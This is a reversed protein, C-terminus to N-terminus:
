FHGLSKRLSAKLFFMSDTLMSMGGQSRSLNNKKAVNKPNNPNNPVIHFLNQVMKQLNQYFCHLVVCFFFPWFKVFNSLSFTPPNIKLTLFILFYIFCKSLLSCLILKQAELLWGLLNPGHLFFRLLHSRQSWSGGGVTFSCAIM